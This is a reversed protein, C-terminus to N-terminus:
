KERGGPIKASITLLKSDGKEQDDYSERSVQRKLDNNEKRMAKVFESFSIKGDKNIDADAFLMNARIDSYDSGLLQRLNKRSIYGTDDSDIRDFAEAFREEEIFGHAEITAALFETYHITGTKDIDISKFIEDIEQDSYKGLKSLETKFELQTITGDNATDYQDFAERIKMLEVPSSRHAVVMLSIKKLESNEGFAILHGHITEMVDGTPRRDSLSYSKQQWNHKLAEEATLREQPDLKLLASVFDKSDQSVHTWSSSDFNFDCRMIRNIVYKRKRHYFPKRSSLLMFTIVGISWLDAQNTYVGQLVQPAMTYITGVGERMVSGPLYKKSLGFDILKVQADPHQSEWMINEFKLDRHAVNLSHMYAIASTVQGTISAAQKESYPGRAFLDGGACLDMVIQIQRKSQFVEYAKVINPHDLERLIGIENNMEEIFVDNVRGLQIAKLAYLRSHESSPAPASVSQKESDDARGVIKRLSGFFGKIETQYASGGVGKKRASSVAGLSGEGLNKVVEYYDSVDRTDERILRGRLGEETQPPMSPSANSDDSNFCNGM